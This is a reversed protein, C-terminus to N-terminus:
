SNEPSVEPSYIFSSEPTEILVSHGPIENNEYLYPSDNFNAVARIQGGYETMQVSGDSLLYKFDSMERLVAQRSFESWIKTHSAIDTKYKEWEAADLHYLPPVNYLVERVMRDTTAGKIKFTSWDWHYSTIVSDNYVLRFLPADYRPDAFLTDYKDKIPIRKSFHEAVGGSPSYYKGIYYESDKNEKMDSDMWSFSKMEIGHAFAITSAAFDHGGESGIVMNYTDRIYSMRELRAKLDEEQNTVHEKTYDDYIEGTADCDIFWSNFPLGNEMIRGMRDKVAPLSFAPNLKRGVGQFGSIKEGKKDTVSANEFLATDEFKATIWKENGPEHISHYSDYSGILYGKSVANNVLEPKAYAQEWSNLGIWAQDIGNAKLDSILDVTDSNMWTSVDHFVGPFNAALAHCNAQIRESDTLMEYGKSLLSDLEQSSQPLAASDYFGNMKLLGSLYSCVVNKQYDAVYDQSKIETIIQTFEAGNESERAFTLLYDMVPSDAAKRFAAWKIDEPSIIFEGWLYIFPAGYLKRIEPNQSAKQELTVFGQTEEVYNKYIRAISVPNNDTLYIRFRNTRTEGIAPYEHSVAFSIGADTEFNLNTRYPHEIIFMVAQDGYEAAWFPMSLHELVAFEQEKLYDMWTKDDAPIRKGEGLPFYYSEASIVPWTFTQDSENEATISVSLYDEVPKVSVSIHEDPYQWKTEEGDKEFNAVERDMGAAFALIQDTGSQFLLAFNEPTIQYDQVSRSYKVKETEPQKDASNNLFDSKACGSLLGAAILICSFSRYRQNWKKM